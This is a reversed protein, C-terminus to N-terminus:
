ALGKHRTGESVDLDPTEASLLALAPSFCLEKKLMTKNYSFSSCPYPLVSLLYTSKNRNQHSYHVADGGPVDCSRSQMQM